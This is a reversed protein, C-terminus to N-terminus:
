IRQPLETTNVGPMQPSLKPGEYDLLKFESYSEAQNAFESKGQFLPKAILLSEVLVQSESLEVLQNLSRDFAVVPHVDPPIITPNGREPLLFEVHVDTLRFSESGAVRVIAASPAIM